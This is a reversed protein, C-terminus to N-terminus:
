VCVESNRSSTERGVGGHRELLVTEGGRKQLARAIALGVVGGGIVAHTFDVDQTGTSSSFTRYKSLLPPPAILPPSVLRQQTYSLPPPFPPTIFHKYIRRSGRSASICYSSSPLLPLPTKMTSLYHPLSTTSPHLHIRHSGKMVIVHILDACFYFFFIGSFFILPKCCHLLYM